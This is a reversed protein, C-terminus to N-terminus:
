MMGVCVKCNRQTSISVLFIQSKFIHVNHKHVQPTVFLGSIM